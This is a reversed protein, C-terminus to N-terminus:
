RSIKSGIDRWLEILTGMYDSASQGSDKIRQMITQLKKARDEEIGKSARITEVMKGFKSNIDALSQTPITRDVEAKLKDLETKGKLLVPLEKLDAAYAAALQHSAHSLGELVRELKKAQELATSVESAVTQNESSQASAFGSLGGVIVSLAILCLALLIRTRGVITIGGRRIAGDPAKKATSAVPGGVTVV